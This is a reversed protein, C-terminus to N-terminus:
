ILNALNQNNILLFNIYMFNDDAIPLKPIVSYLEPVAVLYPQREFTLKIQKSFSYLWALSHQLGAQHDIRRNLRHYQQLNNLYRVPRM